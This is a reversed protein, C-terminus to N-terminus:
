TESKISSAIETQLIFHVVDDVCYEGEDVAVHIGDETGEVAGDVAEFPVGLPARGLGTLRPLSRSLMEAEGIVVLYLRPLGVCYRGLKPADDDSSSM